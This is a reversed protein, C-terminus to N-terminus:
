EQHAQGNAQLQCLLDRLRKIDAVNHQIQDDRFEAFNEFVRYQKKGHEGKRAIYLVSVAQHPLDIVMFPWGHSTVFPGKWTFQTIAESALKLARYSTKQRATARKPDFQVGM